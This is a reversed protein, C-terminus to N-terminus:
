HDLPRIRVKDVHVFTYHGVLRDHLSELTALLRPWKRHRFRPDIRLLAVGPVVLRRRFALEGLDKDETLLIRNEQHALAMVADDDSALSAEQVSVVDHGAGRLAAVLSADVCEDVLFGM